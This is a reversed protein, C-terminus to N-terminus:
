ARGITPIDPADVINVPWVGAGQRSMSPALEAFAEMSSMNGYDAGLDPEFTGPSRCLVGLLPSGMRSFRPWPGTLFNPATRSRESRGVLM